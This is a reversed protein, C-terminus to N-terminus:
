GKELLFLQETVHLPRNDFNRSGRFANYTTEMLEFKGLSGLIFKFQDTSVFGENNFSIMVFKADLSEILDRLLEPSRNRVNYGSRQWDTPIGSVKSIDTPRQYNVILNLMFYNSGYPHQNYPPDLYALDIGDVQKAVHNADEQLVTYDCESNSFIPADLVIAGLIRELADSGSGGFQGLGTQRNKYFGKFVGATNAHISAQVILPGVLLDFMSPAFGEILRRYDDIRRANEPTYFVRDDPTISDEDAPAYLERIFGDPMDSEMVAENLNAIALHLEDADVESTNSLYCRSLLAAYDEIDNVVLHSAHSKFFRSVIGSGSFVDFIDLKDKNLRKKAVDLFSGIDNLRTRKNGIYTIIQRTLYDPNEGICDVGADELFSPQRVM